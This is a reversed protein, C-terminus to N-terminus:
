RMAPPTVRSNSVQPPTMRIMDLVFGTAKVWGRSSDWKEIDITMQVRNSSSPAYLKTVRRCRVSTDSECRTEYKLTLTNGKLAAAELETLGDSDLTMYRIVSAEPDFGYLRTAPALFPAGGDVPDGLAGWEATWEVNIVCHIGPGAGVFVCDGKGSVSKLKLPDIPTGEDYAGDSGSSAAGASSPMDGNYDAMGEFKFLGELRRLWAQMDRTTKDKRAAISEPTDPGPPQAIDRPDARAGAPALIAACALAALPPLIGRRM